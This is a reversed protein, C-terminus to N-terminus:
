NALVVNCAIYDSIETKFNLLNEYNVTPLLWEDEEAAENLKTEALKLAALVQLLKNM